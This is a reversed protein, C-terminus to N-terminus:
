RLSAARIAWRGSQFRGGVVGAARVGRAIPEGDRLRVHAAARVYAMAAARQRPGARLLGYPRPDVDPRDRRYAEFHQGAHPLLDDDQADGATRDRQRRRRGGAIPGHLHQRDADGALVTNANIQAVLQAAVWATASTLELLTGSANADSALARWRHAATNLKPTLTVNNAAAVATANADPAANILTALATAIDGSGDTALQVHTYTQTGITITHNYGTGLYNWFSFTISASGTWGARGSM